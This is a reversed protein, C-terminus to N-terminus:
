AGNRIQEYLATTEEMPTVDLEERLQETCLHYQRLSLYPQGQRSYCRMLRRHAEECCPDVALMKLCLAICAADDERDCCYHSLRELLGLYENQLRQRHPVPWDEYRDEQLFEGGYLTEAVRYARMGADVDGREELRHAVVCHEEFAECDVWIRLDPNLLYCDDRFLVHSYTPCAQRLAQRLGYIAVNLNNRAADPRMDPWFLEMLIEKAIPRKHHTVLYKFISKGKSSPWEDV